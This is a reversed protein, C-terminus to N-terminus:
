RFLLNKIYVSEVVVEELRKAETIRCLLDGTGADFIQKEHVVRTRAVYKRMPSAVEEKTFHGWLLTRLICEACGLAQRNWKRSCIKQKRSIVTGAPTSRKHSTPDLGDTTSMTIGTKCSPGAALRKRPFQRWVPLMSTNLFRTM